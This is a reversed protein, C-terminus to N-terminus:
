APAPASRAFPKIGSVVFVTGGIEAFRKRCTEIEDAVRGSRIAARLRKTGESRQKHTLYGFESFARQFRVDLPSEADYFSEIMPDDVPTARLHEIGLESLWAMVADIRPQIALKTALAAPFYKWFWVAEIQSSDRQVIALPGKRLVRVAEALATKRLEDRDSPNISLNAGVHHLSQVFYVGEFISDAFPLRVIYGEVCHEVRARAMRLMASSRDLGIVGRGHFLAEEYHGTGCGLSLVVGEDPVSSFVARLAQVTAPSPRRLREYDRASSDYDTLTNCKGM